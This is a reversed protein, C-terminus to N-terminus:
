GDSGSQASTTIGGPKILSAFIRHLRRNRRRNTLSLPPEKTATATIEPPPPPVASGTPAGVKTAASAAIEAPHRHNQRPHPNSVTDSQASATPLYRGGGSRLIRLVGHHRPLM